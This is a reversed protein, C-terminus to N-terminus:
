IISLLLCIRGPFAHRRFYVLVQKLRFGRFGFDGAPLNYREPYSPVLIMSRVEYFRLAAATVTRVSQEMTSITLTVPTSDRFVLKPTTREVQLMGM